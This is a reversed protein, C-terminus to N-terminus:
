KVRTSLMMMTGILPLLEIDAARPTHSTNMFCSSYMGHFRAFLSVAYYAERCLVHNSTGFYNRGITKICKSGGLSSLRRVFFLRLQGLADKIRLEM